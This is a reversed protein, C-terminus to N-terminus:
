LGNRHALRCLFMTLAAPPGVVGLSFVTLIALIAAPSWSAVSDNSSAMGLSQALLVVGAGCSFMTAFTAVWAFVALPIPALLFTAIPHRGFFSRRSFEVSAADALSVPAGIQAVVEADTLADKSMNSKREEILDTIHERLEDVYRAIYAAPLDRQQLEYSLQDLLRQIDM